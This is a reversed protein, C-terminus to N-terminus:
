SHVSRRAAIFSSLQMISGIDSRGDDVNVSACPTGGVLSDSGGCGGGISILAVFVACVVGETSKEKEDSAAGFTVTTRQGKAGILPPAELSFDRGFFGHSASSKDTVNKSISPPECSCLVFDVDAAAAPTALLRGRSFGSVLAGLWM